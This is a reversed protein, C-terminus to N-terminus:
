TSYRTASSISPRRAWNAESTAAASPSVGLRASWTTEWAMSRQTQYAPHASLIAWIRPPSLGTVPGYKLMEAGSGVPTTAASAGCCEESSPRTQTRAGIMTLPLVATTTVLWSRGSGATVSESTRAVESTGAPTTLRIVPRVASIAGQSAVWLSTLAM